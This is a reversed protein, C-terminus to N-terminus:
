RNVCLISFICVTTNLIFMVFACQRSLFSYAKKNIRFITCVNCLGELMSRVIVSGLVLIFPYSIDRFALLLFVFIFISLINCGNSGLWM